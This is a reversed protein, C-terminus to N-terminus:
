QVVAAYCTFVTATNMQTRRSRGVAEEKVCVRGRRSLTARAVCGDAPTETGHNTRSSKSNESKVKAMLRLRWLCGDYFVSLAIRLMTGRGGLRHFAFHEADIDLGVCAPREVCAM